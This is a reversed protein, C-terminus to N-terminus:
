QAALSYDDTILTGKGMLALGFSVADAGAPLPATVFSTLKWTSAPDVCRGTEWYNWTGSSERYYTIMCVKPATAGHVPWDGKYWLWTGYRVSSTVKALCASDSSNQSLVLKRDGGTWRTIVVQEAAKGSHAGSVRSWRAENGAVAAGARQFCTPEAASGGARREELSPNRVLNRAAGPEPLSPQVRGGTADDRITATSCLHHENMYDVIPQLAAISNLTEQGGGDHMLVITENKIGNYFNGDVTYGSIVNSVIQEASAGSWDKSDMVNTGPLGWPVVLRYGLGRAVDDARADIDGYPPRYLTPRPLRAAVIARTTSDLQQGIQKETLPATQTTEGTLSAHDYTHNQVSHGAAVEDRLLAAATTGGDVIKKGVVFFTAKLGLARLEDLVARSHVGPGDDFTFEVHGAACDNDIPRKPVIKASATQALAFGTSLALGATALFAVPWRWQGSRM